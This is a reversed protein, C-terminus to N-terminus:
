MITIADGYLQTPHLGNGRDMHVPFEFMVIWPIGPRSSLTPETVPQTLKSLLIEPNFPVLGTQRLASLVTTKKFTQERVSTLAALSEPKNFDSCGTRTAAVIAEAHFHKYPQFVLIHTTHPPLCFPIIGHNDCFDLFEQYLTSWIWGAFTLSMFRTATTSFITWFAKAM